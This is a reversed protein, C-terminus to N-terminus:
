YRSEFYDNGSESDREKTTFHLKNADSGTGSCSLADGFPLSQCTEEVTGTANVQLRKTGLADSLNWHLVGTNDYTAFAAGAVYVNSRLWNGQGDVATVQEGGAGLIYQATLTFNNQTLDCSMSSITGRAV